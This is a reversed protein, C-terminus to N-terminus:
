RVTLSLLVAGRCPRASVTGARSASICGHSCCGILAGEGLNAMGHARQTRLEGAFVPTTQVPFAGVGGVKDLRQGIGSIEAHQNRLFVTAAAEAKTNGCSNQLFDMCGAAITGGAMGLHVDHSRDQSVAAFLLLAAIQRVDSGAAQSKLCETDGFGPGAGVGGAYLCRRYALAVAIHDVALLDPGAPCFM